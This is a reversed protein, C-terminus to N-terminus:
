QLIYLFTKDNNATVNHKQQFHKEQCTGTSLDSSLIHFFTLLSHNQGNKHINLQYIQIAFVPVHLIDM